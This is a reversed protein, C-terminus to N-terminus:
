KSYKYNKAGVNAYPVVKHSPLSKALATIEDKLYTCIKERQTDMDLEPDFVIPKGFVVTKLKPANYMPVFSLAKGTKKYYLRAVDVFKDQFDNVIDNYAKDHEPFIIIHAGNQLKKVTERFTSMLRADKYVAIADARTFIYASIPAIIYSCLKFFWRVSKPKQSWFDQYAYAPVEKIHMMQGICWIYKYGPFFLQSTIPGHIQAHNGIVLSAEQPINETGIIKRKRYFIRIIFVILSFLFPKEKNKKEQEENGITDCTDKYVVLRTYVFELVFNSIMTVALVIYEDVGAGEAWDGLLTSVPTFVAYFALILLMSVKINKSSKFTVKRNITFNWLISALLSLLYAVWYTWKFVENFLAFLAIQVIGASISVITFKIARLVEKFDKKEKEAMYKEKATRNNRYM